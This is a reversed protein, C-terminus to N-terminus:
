SKRSSSRDVAILIGEEALDCIARALWRRNLPHGKGGAVKEIQDLRLPEKTLTSLLQGHRKSKRSWLETVVNAILVQSHQAYGMYRAVVYPSIAYVQGSHAQVSCGGPVVRAIQRSPAAVHLRELSTLFSRLQRASKGEHACHEQQLADLAEREDEDVLVGYVHGIDSRKRALFWGSFIHEFLFTSAFLVEEHLRLFSSSVKGHADVVLTRTISARGLREVGQSDGEVACYVRSAIEGYRPAIDLYDNAWMVPNLGVTHLNDYLPSNPQVVFPEEQVELQGPYRGQLGRLMRISHMFSARSDGPFGPVLGATVGIGADLFAELARMNQNATRGKDMLKLTRDAFSEVGVFVDHCGAEALLGATESDMHARMFSAWLVDTRQAILSEALRVLQRPFGNLLSDVFLIFSAGYTQQLEAVQEATRESTDSRFDRWFLRESCFSCKGVCGRSSHLPLVRWGADKQYAEIHMYDFRPTPLASIPLLQRREGAVFSSGDFSLTGPIGYPTRGTRSFEKYLDFLTEEGEGLVVVDVLGSMLALEASAKSATVQPGGVVVLPPTKRRKLHAAAVLTQYYNTTWVTFGAFRLHPIQTFTSAFFRDLSVLYSWLYKPPMGRETCFRSFLSDPEPVLPLNEDTARLLALVLPLDPIDLVYAEGFVGSYAWTPSHSDPAWLRLDLFDFEDCGKGALYGLLYAAGAPPATPAVPPPAICLINPKFIQPKRRSM